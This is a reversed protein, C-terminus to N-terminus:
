LLDRWELRLGEVCGVSVDLCDVVFVAGTGLLVVGGEGEEGGEEVGELGM